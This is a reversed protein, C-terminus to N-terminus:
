MNQHNEILSHFDTNLCFSKNRTKEFVNRLLSNVLEKYVETFSAILNIDDSTLITNQYISATEKSIKLFM